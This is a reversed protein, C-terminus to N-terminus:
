FHSSFKKPTRRLMNKFDGSYYPNRDIENLLDYDWNKPITDFNAVVDTKYSCVFCM